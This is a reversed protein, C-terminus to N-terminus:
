LNIGIDKLGQIGVGGAVVAGVAKAIPSKVIGKIVTGAKSPFDKGLLELYNAYGKLEPLADYGTLSKLDNLLQLKEANLAPNKIGNAISKLKSEGSVTDRGILNRTLEDAKDINDSAVKLAPKIDPAVEGVLDKLGSQINSLIRNSGDLGGKYFSSLQETLNLIGRASTDKWNSISDVMGKVKSAENSDLLGSDVLDKPTKFLTEADGAIGKYDASSKVSKM